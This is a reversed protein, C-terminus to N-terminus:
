LRQCVSTEAQPLDTLILLQSFCWNRVEVGENVQWPCGQEGFVANTLLRGGCHQRMYGYTACGEVRKKWNLSWGGGLIESFWDGTLWEWSSDVTHLLWGRSERGGGKGSCMLLFDQGEGTGTAECLWRCTTWPQTWPEAQLRQTWAKSALSVLSWWDGKSFLICGIHQKVLTSINTTNKKRGWPALM